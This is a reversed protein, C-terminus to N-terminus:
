PKPPARRLPPPARRSRSPSSTTATTRSSATMEDLIQHVRELARRYVDSYQAFSTAETAELAGEGLAQCFARNVEHRVRAIRDLPHTMSTRRNPDPARTADRADPRTTVGAEADDALMPAWGTSPSTWYVGREPWGKLAEYEYIEFCAEASECSGWWGQVDARIYDRRTLVGDSDRGYQVLTRVECAEAGLDRADQESDRHFLGIVVGNATVQYVPM